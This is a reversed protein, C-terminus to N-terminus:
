TQGAGGRDDADAWGYRLSLWEEDDLPRTVIVEVPSDPRGLDGRDLGLGGDLVEVFCGSM